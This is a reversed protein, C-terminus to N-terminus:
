VLKGPLQPKITLEETASGQHSIRPPQNETASSTSATSAASATSAKKLWMVYLIWEFERWWIFRM